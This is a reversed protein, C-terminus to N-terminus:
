VEWMCLFLTKRFKESQTAAGCGTVDFDGEECELDDKIKTFRVFESNDKIYSTFLDLLSGMFLKRWIVKEQKSVGFDHVFQRFFASTPRDYKKM